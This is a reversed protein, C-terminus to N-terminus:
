TLGICGLTKKYLLTLAFRMVYYFYSTMTSYRLIVTRLVKVDIVKLCQSNAGASGEPSGPGSFNRGSSSLHTAAAKDSKGAGVPVDWVIGISVVSYIFRVRPRIM